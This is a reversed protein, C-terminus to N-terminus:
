ISPLAIKPWCPCRGEKAVPPSTTAGKRWHASRGASNESLGMGKPFCLPFPTARGTARPSVTVPDPLRPPAARLRLRPCPGGPRRRRLRRKGRSRCVCPHTASSVFLFTTPGPTLAPAARTSGRARSEIVAGRGRPEHIEEPLRCRSPGCPPRTVPQQRPLLPISPSPAAKAAGGTIRRHKGTEPLRGYRREPVHQAPGPCLRDRRHRQPQHLPRRLRGLLKQRRKRRDQRPAEPRSPLDSTAAARM